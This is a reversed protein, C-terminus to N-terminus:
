RLLVKLEGRAKLGLWVLPAFIRAAGAHKWFLRFASRHFARISPVVNHASSAGGSHRVASTPVYHCTFGLATARRCYDADEWYMFFSEDLGGLREFTARPTALCSGALWDVEASHRGEGQLLNRRSFWNNPFTRTLWTSRGGLVTSLGPFRRASPQVTGDGNLVKPGAVAVDANAQLWAELDRLIPGEVVTDPNLWVLVPAATAAAARNIGVAFGLNETSPVWRVFRHREALPRRTGEDTVWDVVVVEDGPRLFPELSALCRDLSDYTRFNVILVAVL